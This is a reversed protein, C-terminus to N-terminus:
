HGHHHLSSRLGTGAEERTFGSRCPYRWAQPHRPVQPLPNVRSSAPAPEVPLRDKEGGPTEEVAVAKEVPEAAVTPSRGPGTKRPAAKPALAEAEALKRAMDWHRDEQGAPKGESEWIQYAFERIRKEDVSMMVSRINM